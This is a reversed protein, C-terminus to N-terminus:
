RIRFLRVSWGRTDFLPQPSRGDGVDYVTTASYDGAAVLMYATGDIDFTYQAGANWDIADIAAATGAIPDYSWFRWNAGYTVEAPDSTPTLTVRDAHLASLIARGGGVFKFAAGQRGETVQAFEFAVSVADSGSAVKVVCTPPQQLVAAGGAAFVWSSFYLNGAADSTAYDLGPCPAELVDVLTDTAVDFVAIASDPTFQFYTDDTWYLPQYLRGSRVVAARDSYGTFVKFGSRAELVPLPVTKVIEMTAPNWVIFETSGNLFYAKTPSVFTNLWFGFDTLGYSLLSITEGEVLERGVVAYKTITRAETTAIFVAGDHVWMDSQGTTERARTYDITQGDLSDILSVYATTENSGFFLSSVAYLPGNGSGGDNAGAGAGAGGGGCGLGITVAAVVVTTARMLEVAAKIV